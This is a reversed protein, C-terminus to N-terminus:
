YGQHSVNAKMIKKMIIIKKTLIDEKLQSLEKFNDGKIQSESQNM